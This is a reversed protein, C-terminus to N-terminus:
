EPAIAIVKWLGVEWRSIEHDHTKVVEPDGVLAPISWEIVGLANIPGLGVSSDITEPKGMMKSLM